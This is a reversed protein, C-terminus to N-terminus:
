SSEFISVTTSTLSSEADQLKRSMSKLDSNLDKIRKDQRTNSNTLDGNKQRLDVLVRETNERAAESRRMQELLQQINVLSGNFQVLGGVADVNVTDGNQNVTSTEKELQNGRALEAMQEETVNELPNVFPVDALRDTLKRYYLSDRTVFKESIKRVQSRSLNLGLTYLLDELDKEFIYGCHSQDFYVFSLLIDPFATIYKPREVVKMDKGDKDKDRKSRSRDSRTTMSDDSDEAHRKKDKKDGDKSEDKSAEVEPEKKEGSETPKESEASEETTKADKKKEDDKTEEKAKLPPFFNIAKFITFGFDRTLMENFLEAFLSVEFSHEKTDEPRYDLLVSLSMVTCDFKGNRASKSPHVIIQPNEPLAYRKEIQHREKEDLKRPEPKKKERPKEVKEEECKTSDYEDIVTVESIDMEAINMEQEGEDKAKEAEIPQPKEDTGTEQSLPVDSETMEVDEPEEGEGNSSSPDAETQLAKALRAVM